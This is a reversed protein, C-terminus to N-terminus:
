RLIDGGIKSTVNARDDIQWATSSENDVKTARTNNETWIESHTSYPSDMERTPANKM